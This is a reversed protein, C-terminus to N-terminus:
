AHGADCHILFGDRLLDAVALLLHREGDGDLELLGAIAGALQGATFEGDAAALFGATATDLRAVRRFGGGQRALIVEPDAAGFRQHREETVDPPVQLHLARVADLDVPDTDAPTKSPVHSTGSGATLDWREVAAAWAPGLPRQLEGEVTETRIRGARPEAPRRLWLYGFGVAAVGRAEFDELYRRYGASFHEPDLQESSDQLWTEAYGAPDLLDRQIFWADTGQPVWSRLREDWGSLQPSAAGPVATDPVEPGAGPGPAHIEWNGLLQATGGPALHDPLRTILEALLRDGTRGGDRYTNIGEPIQTTGAGEGAGADRPTIVFPPNSVILDFQEGAVPDLLDGQVLRIREAPLQGDPTLALGLAQANLVLNFRTFELARDSLDTATVHQAHPILHLTQIGCGAGLDLAREVPRRDVNGALTLSARGIGLVHWSPLASRAQLATQDSAVWLDGLDDTSYPSLDVVPHLVGEQVWGLELRQAGEAGLRPLAAELLEVPVPDGLMWASVVAALGRQSALSGGDYMVQSLRLRAPEAQERDLAQTAVPGLLEEVADATYPLERLDAALDQVAQVDRTRPHLSERHFPRGSM